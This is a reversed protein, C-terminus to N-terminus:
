IINKKNYDRKLNGRKMHNKLTPNELLNYVIYCHKMFVKFNFVEIPTTNDHWCDGHKVNSGKWNCMCREITMHSFQIYKNEWCMNSNLKPWKVNFLSLITTHFHINFSLFFLNKKCSSWIACITPAVEIHFSVCNAWWNDHYFQNYLKVFQWFKILLFCVCVCVFITVVHNFVHTFNDHCYLIMILLCQLYFKTM